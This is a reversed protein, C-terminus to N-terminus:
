ASTGDAAGHTAGHRDLEPRHGAGHRTSSRMSVTDKALATARALECASSVPFLWALPAPRFGPPTEALSVVDKM